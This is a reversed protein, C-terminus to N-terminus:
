GAGNKDHMGQLDNFFAMTKPGCSIGQEALLGRCQRVIELGETERGTRKFTSILTSFVQAATKDDTLAQLIASRPESDIDLKVFLPLAAALVGQWQKNLQSSYVVALSLQEAGTAFPGRYLSLAHAILKEVGDKHATSEIQRVQWQFHRCDVWCLKRNLFLQAGKQVIAENHGLLKRLRHLTTNLNQLALDGDSDPWLRDAAVERLIGNKGSCILLTLLELPKRPTKQSLTLPKGHCHIEFRGLVFIRVPWPWRECVTEADPPQLHWLRIMEVVMDEEIGAELAHACVAGLRRNSLGFPVWIIGGVKRCASFAAQCYLNARATQNQTYACDASALDALFHVVKSNHLQPINRVAALLDASQRPEGLELCIQSQLIRTAAITLQNGCLETLNISIEIHGQAEILNGVQMAHWAVLSQYQAHDWTANPDLAAKLRVLVPPVRELNGTGLLSWSSFTIIMFDILHIGTEEAIGLAQTIMRHCERHDGRCVRSYLLLTSFFLRGLPPLNETKILGRLRNEMILSKRIQGMWQYSWCLNKILDLVVQPERCRDLLSECRRQWYVMDPHGQNRLLLSFLMGAAFRGVLDANNEDDPLLRDLRASETIWRDLDTFGSRSMVLVNVVTSWSLVQGIIDNNEVFLEYARSCLMGSEQPTSTALAVGKWFLLYPHREISDAPLSDIWALLVANRGQNVLAQAHSLTIAEIQQYAKAQLYLNIAEEPFGQRELIEAARCRLTQLADADFIRGAQLLLFKRFLPHYQYSIVPWRRKELFFNKRYLTELIDEAPMSTLEGAMDATMHPLVATQLLFQRIDAGAKVLIEAVFYDFINEPTQEALLASPLSDGTHQLLWLIAGAIWGQTFRYLREADEADVRTESFLLFAIFEESTFALQGWAILLMNRNAIFRAMVPPLDSRSIFVITIHPPLQKVAIALLQALAAEDPAEQFNDFILWSNPEIRQFLTEFYRLTFVEINPLYEPTLLPMPPDASVMLSSAAKGFYYFFTALDGDLADVQYWLCPREENKLFSAILTTKGSGGPGSIWFANTPSDQRLLAFLRDRELVDGISIPSIKNAM